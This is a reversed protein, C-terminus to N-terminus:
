PPGERVAETPLERDGEEDHAPQPAQQRHDEDLVEDRGPDDQEDPTQEAVGRERHDVRQEDVRHGAGGARRQPDHDAHGQADRAEEGGGDGAHHDGLEAEGPVVHDERQDAEDSEDGQGADGLGHADGLAVARGGGSGSGSTTAVVVLFSLRMLMSWRSAGSARSSFTALPKVQASPGAQIGARPTSRKLSMGPLRTSSNESASRVVTSILASASNVLPRVRARSPETM